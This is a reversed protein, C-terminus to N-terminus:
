WHLRFREFFWDDDHVRHGRVERRRAAIDTAMVLLLAEGFERYKQLAGVVRDLREPSFHVLALRLRNHLSYRPPLPYPARERFYHAVLTEPTVWLEYGRMWLRLCMENDVNGAARMAEDFGGTAEFVGRRVAVCACPVIPVPAPRAMRRRRWVAELHPQPLTLGYGVSGRGPMDWMAPAAAAIRPNEVLALLPRWWDAELALHADCFVLVEGKAVAAGQNRCCAVGMSEENRLLRIRRKNKGTLFQTSGDTSADDVVVIEADGPLTDDLNEVTDRLRRRENRSTVVASIRAAM